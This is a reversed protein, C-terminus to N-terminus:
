HKAEYDEVMSRVATSMKKDYLIGAASDKATKRSELRYAVVQAALRAVLRKNPRVGMSKIAEETKKSVAAPDRRFEQVAKQVREDMDESTEKSAQQEKEWAKTQVETWGGAPQQGWATSRKAQPQMVEAASKGSNSKSSGGRSQDRERKGSHWARMQQNMRSSIELPADRRQFLLVEQGVAKGLIKGSPMVASSLMMTVMWPNDRESRERQQTYRNRQQVKIKKPDISLDGHELWHELVALVHEETRDEPKAMGGPLLKENSCGKGLWMLIDKGLQKAQIALTVLCPTYAVVYARGARAAKDM